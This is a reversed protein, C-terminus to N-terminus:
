LKNWIQYKLCNFNNKLRNAKYGAENRLNEILLFAIMSKVECM